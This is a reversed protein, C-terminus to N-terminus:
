KHTNQSMRPIYKRFSIMADALVPTKIKPHQGRYEYQVTSYLRFCRQKKNTIVKITFTQTMYHESNTYKMGRATTM